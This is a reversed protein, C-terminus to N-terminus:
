HATVTEKKMTKAEDRKLKDALEAARRDLKCGRAYVAWNVGLFLLNLYYVILVWNISGSLYKAVIGAVYGITILALFQWSTGHATGSKYAKYANLPWSLGFCVLMVAELVSAM